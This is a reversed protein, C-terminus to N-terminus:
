LTTDMFQCSTKFAILLDNINPYNFEWVYEMSEQFGGLFDSIELFEETSSIPGHGKGSIHMLSVTQNSLWEPNKHIPCDMANSVDLVFEFSHPLDIASGFTGHLPDEFSQCINEVAVAVRTKATWACAQDLVLKWINQSMRFSPAGIVIRNINSLSCIKQLSIFRNRLLEELNSSWPDIGFFVGQMSHAGLPIQSLSFGDRPFRILISGDSQPEGFHSPSLAISEIGLSKIQQIDADTIKQVSVLSLISKM